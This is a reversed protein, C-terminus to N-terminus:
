TILYYVIWWSEEYLAIQKETHLFKTTIYIDQEENFMSKFPKKDNM